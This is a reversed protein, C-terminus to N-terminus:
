LHILHIADEVEVAISNMQGTEVTMTGMVDILGLFVNRVMTVPFNIQATVAILALILHFLSHPFLYEM